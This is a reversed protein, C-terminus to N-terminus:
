KTPTSGSPLKSIIEKISLNYQGFAEYHEEAMESCIANISEQDLYNTKVRKTYLIVYNQRPIIIAKSNDDNQYDNNFNQISSPDILAVKIQKPLINNITTDFYLYSLELNKGLMSLMEYKPTYLNWRPNKVQYYIDWLSMTITSRFRRFDLQLSGELSVIQYNQTLRQVTEEILDRKTMQEEIVSPNMQRYDEEFNSPLYSTTLPLLPVDIMVEWEQNYMKWVEEYNFIDKDNVCITPNPIRMHNWRTILGNKIEVDTNSITNMRNFSDSNLSFRPAKTKKYGESIVVSNVEKLEKDFGENNNSQNYSTKRINQNDIDDDSTVVPIDSDSKELINEDQYIENWGSDFSKNFKPNFKRCSSNDIDSTDEALLRNEAIEFIGQFNM